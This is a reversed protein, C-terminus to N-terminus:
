SRCQAGRALSLLLDRFPIPPAKSEVKGLPPLWYTGDESKGYSVQHTAEPESWDLQPPENDGHYLLWTRKQARHGYATQSVQTIWDGWINRQWCWPAPRGLHFRGFAISRAPHELVGGFKRVTALAHAFCGGDDGIEYGYRARVSYALVSWRACPPHAVVPFPGDYLRADRPVDWPDVGELGFYTGGTAVYLAAIM